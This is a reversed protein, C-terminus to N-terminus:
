GTIRGPGHGSDGPRRGRAGDSTDHRDTDDDEPIVEGPVVKGDPRHMRMQDHAQRAQGVAAGFRTRRALQSGVAGGIALRVLPRTFPLLCLLGFADSIFGPIILLIGGLIVLGADAAARGTAASPLVSAPNRPDADAANATAAASLRNLARRGAYKIALAGAVVGALLLLVTNGAGIASGVRSIVFIELIPWAVLALLIAARRM